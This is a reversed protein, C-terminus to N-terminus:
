PMTQNRNSHNKRLPFCMVRNTSNQWVMVNRTQWGIALSQPKISKKLRAYLKVCCLALVTVKSFIIALSWVYLITVLLNNVLLSRKHWDTPLLSNPMLFICVMIAETVWCDNFDPFTMLPLFFLYTEFVLWCLHRFPITSWQSIM